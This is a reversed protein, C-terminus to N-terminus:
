KQNERLLQIEHLQPDTPQKEGLWSVKLVQKGAVLRLQGVAEEGARGQVAQRNVAIRWPGAGQPPMARLKVSYVGPQQVQLHYHASEGVQDWGEIWNFTKLLGSDLAFAGKAPIKLADSRLLFTPTGFSWPVAKVASFWQSLEGELRQAQDPFQPFVNRSEKPDSRLDVLVREQILPPTQAYTAVNLMLKFSDSRVSLIQKRYDLQAKAQPGLPRYEDKVGQPTWPQDSPPWGRNAYDFTRKGQRLVASDRLLPLLSRGDLPLHEVPLELGALDLLTPLLDTVDALATRKGPVLKGKWRVFLPSKIGNEWLNGKHGQYGSVYRLARDQDSLDRNNVAPGNDSLLIVVTNEDLGLAQMGEFLRGVAQDVWDVMAYLTALNPSLGQETYIAVLSDPAELPAHCTLFSLYALFSTDQQRQMFDLAYDVIVQSSWRGPFDVPKGNFVGKADRHRYLQAMYAEQFGREWPEYGPGHGSHWKGWLGTVYGASGLWDGMTKERLNLYDKGGHVHSVGTKLFHRGTLLSARSPACVSNVFFSEFRVSSRGLADLNPTRLYPNGHLALDDWGLDDLQILVFNPRPNKPASPSPCGAFLLGVLVLGVVPLIFRRPMSTCMNLFIMGREHAETFRGASGKHSAVRETGVNEVSPSEM